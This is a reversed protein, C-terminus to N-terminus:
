QSEKEMNKQKKKEVGKWTRWASVLNDINLVCERAMDRQVAIDFMVEGRANDMKRYYSNIATRVASLFSAESQHVGVRAM